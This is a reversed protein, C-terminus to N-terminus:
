VDLERRGVKKLLDFVGQSRLEMRADYGLNLVENEQTLRGDMECVLSVELNGVGKLKTVSSIAKVVPSIAIMWVLDGICVRYHSYRNNMREAIKHANANYPVVSLKGVM